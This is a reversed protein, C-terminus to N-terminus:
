HFCSLARCREVLRLLLALCLKVPRNVTTAVLWLGGLSFVLMVLSDFVLWLSLQLHDNSIPAHLLMVVCLEVMPDISTM